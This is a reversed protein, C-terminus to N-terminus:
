APLNIKFSFSLLSWSSFSSDGRSFIFIIDKCFTRSGVHDSLDETKKLLVNTVQQQHHCCDSNPNQEFNLGGQPLKGVEPTLIVRQSIVLEIKSYEVQM